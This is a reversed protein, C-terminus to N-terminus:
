YKYKDRLGKTAPSVVPANGGGAAGVLPTPTQFLSEIDEATPLKPAFSPSEGWNTMVDHLNKEFGYRRHEMELVLQRLVAQTQDPTYSSKM